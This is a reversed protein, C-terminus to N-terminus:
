AALLTPPVGALARCDNVLHSQDAYGAAFAVESWGRTGGSGAIALARQLRVVRAFRKPGYGVEATFRRRLHRQGVGLRDALAAVPESGQLGAVAAAVLPDPSSGRGVRRGLWDLLLVGREAPRGAESVADELREADPGWVEAAPARLDLLGDAAVGLLAPAGGPRFRVGVAGDGPAMRALFATTNPGVALLGAGDSWILDVCGDPLVRHVDHAVGAPARRQWLCEVWPRLVAPPALERYTAEPM